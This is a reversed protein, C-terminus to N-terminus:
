TGVVGREVCPLGFEVALVLAEAFKRALKAGLFRGLGVVGDVGRCRGRLFSVRAERILCESHCYLASNTSLRNVIVRNRVGSCERFSEKTVLAIKM